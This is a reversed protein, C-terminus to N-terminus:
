KVSDLWANAEVTIQDGGQAKWYTLWENEFAAIPKQGTIIQVFITNRQAEITSWSGEMTKTNPGYYANLKKPLTPLVHMTGGAAFIASVGYGEADKKDLWAVSRDYYSRMEDTTLRSRDRAKVAEAVVNAIGLNQMPNAGEPSFVAAYFFTSIANGDEIVTHFSGDADIKPQAINALKVVAEPYLTGKKMTYVSRGDDKMSVAAAASGGAKRPLPVIAWEANPNNLRSNKYVWDPYWNYGQAFGVVGSQGDRQEDVWVQKVAFDPHLVGDKYLKALWELADRVQRQVSGHVVKGDAGQLWIRPWADFVEFLGNAPTGGNFLDSTGSNTSITLGFTDKKGNGDPDNNTFAYLMKEFDAFNAPVGMGLKALWDSRAYGLFGQDGPNTPAVLGYLRGKFGLFKALIGDSMAFNAKWQENAFQDVATTIDALLGAAAMQYYHSWSLRMLDALEGAAISTNVRTNYQEGPVSWLYKLEIGLKEKVYLTWRNNDWTEGAPYARNDDRQWTTLTIGPTFMGDPGPQSVFVQAAPASAGGTETRGAAFVVAASLAVLAIVILTRKM